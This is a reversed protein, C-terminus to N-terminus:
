TEEELEETTVEPGKRVQLDLLVRDVEALGEEEPTAQAKPTEDIPASRMAQLGAAQLKVLHGMAKDRQTETATPDTALMWLRDVIAATTVQAAGVAREQGLRIYQRVDERRCLAAAAQRKATGAFGALTVAEPGKKGQVVLEAFRCHYPKMTKALVTLEDDCSRVSPVYVLKPTRNRKPPASPPVPPSPAVVPPPHKGAKHKNAKRGM